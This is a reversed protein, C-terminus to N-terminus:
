PKGSPPAAMAKEASRFLCRVPTTRAGNFIAQVTPQCRVENSLATSCSPEVPNRCPQSGNGTVILHPTQQYCTWYVNRHSA